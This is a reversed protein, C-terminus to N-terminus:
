AHKGEQERGRRGPHEGPGPEVVGVHYCARPLLHRQWTAVESAFKESRRKPSTRLVDIGRVRTFLPLISPGPDLLEPGQHHATTAGKHRWGAQLTACITCIVAGRM